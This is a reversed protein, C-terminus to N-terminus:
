KEVVVLNTPKIINEALCNIKVLLSNSNFTMGTPVDVYMTIEKGNYKIKEKEDGFLLNYETNANVIKFSIKTRVVYEEGNDYMIPMMPTAKGELKIKNDKVYQVYDKVDDQGIKYVVLNDISDLFNEVTITEYNINLIRDFYRTLIEDTQGYLYGMVKYVEKPNKFTYQRRVKYDLEYIDKSINSVVYPYDKYNDPLEDKDTVITVKEDKTSNINGYYITAYDEVINIVLKNLEGKIIEKDSLESTKNKIIGLTVAKAIIEQEKETYEKLKQEKMELKSPQIEEGLFGELVSTLIIISDIKTASLALDKKDISNNVGSYVSYDYLNIADSINKDALYYMSFIDKNNKISGIIVKLLEANTVEQTATAKKNEYLENYGYTTMKDTYPMYKLTIVLARIGLYVGVCAVIIVLVLLITFISIEKIAKKNSSKKTVKNIRQKKREM